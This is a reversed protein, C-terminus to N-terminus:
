QGAGGGSYASQPYRAAEVAEPWMYNNAANDEAEHGPVPAPMPQCRGDYRGGFVAPQGRTAGRRREAELGRWERLDRLLKERDWHNEKLLVFGVFSGSRGAEEPAEESVEDASDDAEDDEGGTLRVTSM